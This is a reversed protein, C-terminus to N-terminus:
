VCFLQRRHATLQRASFHALCESDKARRDGGTSQLVTLVGSPLLGVSRAGAEQRGPKRWPGKAGASITCSRKSPVKLGWVPLGARDSAGVAGLCRAGTSDARAEHAGPGM